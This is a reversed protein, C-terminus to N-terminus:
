FNEYAFYVLARTKDLLLSCANTISNTDLSDFNIEEKKDLLYGCTEDNKIKRYEREYWILFNIADIRALKKARTKFKELGIKEIKLNFKKNYEDLLHTYVEHITKVFDNIEIQSEKRSPLNRLKTLINEAETIKRAATM